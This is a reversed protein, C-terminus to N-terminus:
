NHVGVVFVKSVFECTDVGHDYADNYENDAKDFEALM